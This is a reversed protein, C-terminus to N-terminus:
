HRKHREIIRREFYAAKDALTFRRFEIHSVGASTQVWISGAAGAALATVEDSPLYRRGGFYQWRDWAQPRNQYRVLGERGGAWVAGDTAIAIARLGGVPLGDGFSLRVRPLSGRVLSDAELSWRTGDRQAAQQPQRLQERIRVPIRAENSAYVPRFKHPGPRLKVAAPAFLSLSVVVILSLALSSVLRRM